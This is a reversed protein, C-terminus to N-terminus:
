VELENIVEAGIESAIIQVCELIARNVWKKSSNNKGFGGYKNVIEAYSTTGNPNTVPLIVKDERWKNLDYYKPDIVISFTSGSIESTEISNKTNGSLVPATVRLSSLILNYLKETDNLKKLQLKKM